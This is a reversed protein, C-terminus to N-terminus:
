YRIPRLYCVWGYEIRCGNLDCVYYPVRQCERNYGVPVNGPGGPVDAAIVTSDSWANAGDNFAAPHRGGCVLSRAATFGPMSM